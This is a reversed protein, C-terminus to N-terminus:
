FVAAADDITERVSTHVEIPLIARQGGHTLGEMRRQASPALSMGSGKAATGQAITSLAVGAGSPADNQVRALAELYDAATATPGGEVLLALGEVTVGPFHKAMVQAARESQSGPVEFGGSTLREAQRQAFPEGRAGPDGLPRHDRGATEGHLALHSGHM